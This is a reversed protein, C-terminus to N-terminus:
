HLTAMGLNLRILNEIDKSIGEFDKLSRFEVVLNFLHMQSINPKIQNDVM